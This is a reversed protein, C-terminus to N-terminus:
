IESWILNSVKNNSCTNDLHKIYKYGKHNPIYKCAILYDVRYKRKEGEININVYEYNGICTLKCQKYIIHGCITKIRYINGTESIMYYREINDVLEREEYM